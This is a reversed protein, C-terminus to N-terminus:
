MQQGMQNVANLFCSCYITNGKNKSVTTVVFANGKCNNVM